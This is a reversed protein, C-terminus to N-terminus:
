GEPKTARIAAPFMGRAAEGGLSAPPPESATRDVQGKRFGVRRLLRKM